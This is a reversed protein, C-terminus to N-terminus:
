IPTDRTWRDDGYVTDTTNFRGAAMRSPTGTPEQPVGTDLEVPVTELEKRRDLLKIQELDRSPWDGLVMCWFLGLDHEFEAGRDWNDVAAATFGRALLAGRVQKYARGHADQAIQDWYGALEQERVKLAGAVVKRFEIDTLFM